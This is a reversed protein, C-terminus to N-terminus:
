GLKPLGRGVSPTSSWEVWGGDAIKAVFGAAERWDHADRGNMRASYSWAMSDASCLQERIGPHRLATIKLGFGHLVLDPRAKRIAALVAHVQAPDANRKCISGVGVRMGAPILDGYMELHQLYEDPAYGQLVPLVPIQTAARIRLYRSITLQQHELVTKGTKRLVFEECMYDQSVAAVLNGCCSWRDIEAAYEEPTTRYEGYRTIETFAGSDLVWDNVKFDSKRRRLRNISLFSRQFRWAFHLDDLGVFFQM